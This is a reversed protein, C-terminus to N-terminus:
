YGKPKNSIMKDGQDTDNPVAADDTWGNHVGAAAGSPAFQPSCAATFSAMALVAALRITAFKRM